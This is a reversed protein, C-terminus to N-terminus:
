AKTPLTLHTYSVAESIELAEETAGEPAPDVLVPIIPRNTGFESIEFAVWESKWAEDTLVVMLIKSRKLAQSIRKDIKEAYEIGRTDQFATRRQKRLQEAIQSALQAGDKRAHSVFVDYGVFREWVSQSPQIAENENM